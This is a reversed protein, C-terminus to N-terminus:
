MRLLIGFSSLMFKRSLHPRIEQAAYAVFSGSIFLFTPVAFVGLGQLFTLLYHQWGTLPPYGFKIGLSLALEITHNVLILLISLGSLAGLQRSVFV